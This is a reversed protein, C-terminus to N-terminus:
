AQAETTGRPEGPSFPTHAREVGFAPFIKPATDDNPQKASVLELVSQARGLPEPLPQVGTAAIIILVKM